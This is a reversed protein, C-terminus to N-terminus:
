VSFMLLIIFFTPVQYCQPIQPLMFSGHTLAEVLLSADNFSYKLISELCAINLLEEPHAPFSRMYPVNIIDVEIGLWNVFSIAAVEGGCSLYVGILAEVVDAVVKSKIKRIGKTFVKTSTSLQVEHFAEMQDGPIIWM